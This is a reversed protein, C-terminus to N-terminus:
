PLSGHTPLDGQCNQSHQDRGGSRPPLTHVLLRLGGLALWGPLGHGLGILGDHGLRGHQLGHLRLLNGGTLRGLL